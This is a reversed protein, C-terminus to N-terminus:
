VRGQVFINITKKQEYRYFPGRTLLFHVSTNNRSWEWERAPLCVSFHHGIKCHLIVIEVIDTPKSKCCLGFMLAGCLNKQAM